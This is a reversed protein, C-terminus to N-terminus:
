NMNQMDTLLRDHMIVRIVDEFTSPSATVSIHGDIFLGTGAAIFAARIQSSAILIRIASNQERIWRATELGSMVGASTEGILIIDPRIHRYHNVAEEGSSVWRLSEVLTLKVLVRLLYNRVEVKNEVVLLKIKRLPM